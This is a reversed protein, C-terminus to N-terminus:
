KMVGGGDGWEQDRGNKGFNTKGGGGGFPYGLGGRPTKPVKGYTKIFNLEGRKEQGEGGWLEVFHPTLPQYSM